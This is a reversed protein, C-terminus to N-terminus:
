VPSNNEGAVVINTLLSFNYKYSFNTEKTIHFVDQFLRM